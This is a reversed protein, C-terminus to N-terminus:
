DDMLGRRILDAVEQGAIVSGEMSREPYNPRSFMGALYLGDKEYPPILDAFGTTYVPGAYPEVTLHHWHIEEESVNFRRCFDELMIDGHDAPLSGQFYSALYIIHEGYREPNVFNTHGIVAGYPARDKMNLWYIGNTVEKSLGVTMCAAGQYPIEPLTPGGIAELAPPAITSIVADYQTDNVTWRNGHRRLKRAPMSHCITCGQAELREELAHILSNYGKKMYGLREGEPGRDSRIAIRSILWAASVSDRMDGFKSKLLPEFFSTYNHKGCTKLIFEKAPMEDLAAVDYHRSRLTLIGLRAKDTFTLDPYRLIELPTTLPLIEGEVYYGTSGKLWELEDSLGLEELLALLNSDGSFCHHYFNEIWAGNLSSSSLCGGITPSKELLDVHAFESLRFASVLGSLGGGIICIKM